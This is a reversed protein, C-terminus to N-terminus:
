RQDQEDGARPTDPEGGDAEQLVDRRRTMQQERQEDEGLRERPRANDDERADPRRQGHISKVHQPSVLSSDPAANSAPRLTVIDGPIPAATSRAPRTRGARTRIGKAETIRVVNKPSPQPTLMAPRRAPQGFRRGLAEGSAAGNTAGADSGASAAAGIGARAASRRDTGLRRDFTSGEVYSLLTNPRPGAHRRDFRRREKINNTQKNGVGARSMSAHLGSWRDLIAQLVKQVKARDQIDAADLAGTEHMALLHAPRLEVQVSQRIRSRHGGAAPPPTGEGGMFDADPSSSMMQADAAQDRGEAAPAAISIPANLGEALHRATERVARLCSAVTQDPSSLSSVSLDLDSIQQSLLLSLPQLRSMETQAPSSRASSRESGRSAEKPDFPGDQAM